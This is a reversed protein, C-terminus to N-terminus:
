PQVRRARIVIASSVLGVIVTLWLWKLGLQSYVTRVEGTNVRAVMWTPPGGQPLSKQMRGRADIVMSPGAASAVVVPRGYEIARFVSAANHQAPEGPGVFDSDNTLQLIVSAGARDLRESLAAFLNEWCILVGVSQEHELAFLGPSQGAIGHLQRAVLWRPWAIWSSLPTWEAFPVLRNKTYSGRLTGDRAVLFAQNKLQVDEATTLAESGYKGFDASGFLVPVNSELAIGSVAAQVGPDFFYGSVASEPWVVLDPHSEVTELTLARLTELKAAASLAGGGPQVVAVALTGTAPPDRLRGLGYAYTAVVIAGPWLLRRADRTQWAQALALNVLCVILGVLPEGGFSAVQMVLSDHVQTYALPDWPDALFGARARLVHLITWAIAGLPVWPLRRCRLWALAACWAAPYLALYAGIALADAFSFARLHWLWAHVGAISTAGFLAGYRAARGPSSGHLARVLPLLAIWGLAGFAHPPLALVLLGASALVYVLQVGVILV